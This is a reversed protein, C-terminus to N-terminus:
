IVHHLVKNQITINTTLNLKNQQMSPTKFLLFQEIYYIFQKKTSRVSFIHLKKKKIIPKVHGKKNEGLIGATPSKNRDILYLRPYIAKNEKSQKADFTSFLLNIHFIIEM